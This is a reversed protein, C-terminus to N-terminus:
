QEAKAKKWRRRVYWPIPRRPKKANEEPKETSKQTARRKAPNETNECQHKPRPAWPAGCKFCKYVKRRPEAEDSKGRVWEFAPAAQKGSRVADWDIWPTRAKGPTGSPEGLVNMPSFTTNIQARVVERM